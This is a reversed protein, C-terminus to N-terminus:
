AADKREDAQRAAVLDAWIDALATMVHSWPPCHEPPVEVGVSRLVDASGMGQQVSFLIHEAAVRDAETSPELTLAM